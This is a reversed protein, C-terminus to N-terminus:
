SFRLLFLTADSDNKFLVHTSDDGTIILEANYEKKLVENPWAKPDNSKRFNFWWRHEDGFRGSTHDFIYLKM